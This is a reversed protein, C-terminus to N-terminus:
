SSRSCMWTPTPAWCPQSTPKGTDPEYPTVLSTTSWSGDHGTVARVQVDYSTDNTLNRFIHHAPDGGLGSAVTWQDDSKNTASSIIWRVDYTVDVGAAIESPASWVVTAAEDGALSEIVPASNRATASGIGSWSGDVSTVGGDDSTVARMQFDYETGNVLNTAVGTLPGSVWFDDVVTWNSDVRDTESHEIHRLDYAVVTHGSPLSTPATWSLTVEGSGVGIGSIVPPGASSQALAGEAALGMAALLVAVVAAVLRRWTLRHARGQTDGVVFDGSCAM